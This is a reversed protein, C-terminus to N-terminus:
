LKRLDVKDSFDGQEEELPVSRFIAYNIADYKMHSQLIETWKLLAESLNKPRGNKEISKLIDTIKDYSFEPLPTGKEKVKKPVTNEILKDM